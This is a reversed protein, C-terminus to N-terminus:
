GLKYPDSEIGSGSVVKLNSKLYITPRVRLEDTLDGATIRGNDLVQYISNTSTITRTSLFYKTEDNVFLEGLQLLGVYLKENYDAIKNFDYNYTKDYRGTYFDSKVIFDNNSLKNYFTKNLYYGIKTSTSFYNTKGFSTYYDEKKEKVVGNMVLKTKDNDQEIIRWTYDSFTVYSGVYKDSLINDTATDLNFPNGETGDGNLIKTDGKITITPRIGYSYYQKDNSSTNNLTGKSYVYWTNNDDDINSTWWYEDINLYSSAGGANQYEMASLLGVKDEVYNSCTVKEESITDICSNTPVIIDTNSLGQYFSKISNDDDNLWSRAYSDSYDDNVGWVLSTQSDDTIMKINKDENVSVIRWIRGSYKVYNAFNNGKYTYIDKDKYLGSGSDVINKKNTIVDVIKENKIAKPHEIKYFHIFRYGYFICCGVLFLIDIAIIINKTKFKIRNNKNNVKKNNM